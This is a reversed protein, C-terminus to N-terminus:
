WSDESQKSYGLFDRNLDLSGFFYKGFKGAWFLGPIFFRLGWSIRRDDGDSSIRLVGGRGPHPMGYFKVSTSYRTPAQVTNSLIKHM